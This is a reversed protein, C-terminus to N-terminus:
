KKKFEERAKRWKETVVRGQGYGVGNDTMFKCMEGYEDPTMCLYIFEVDTLPAIQKTLKM